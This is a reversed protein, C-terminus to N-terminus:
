KGLLRKASLAGREEPTLTKPAPGGDASIAPPAYSRMEEVFTKPGNSEADAAAMSLAVSVLELPLNTEFAFHEALKERGVALPNQLIAAIRKKEAAKVRERDIQHGRPASLAGSHLPSRQPTMPSVPIPPKPLTAEVDPWYGVADALGEAVADAGVYTQAETALAAASTMRKGRGLEVEDAFQVRLDEVRAQLDAKAQDSLQEFPNGDTKFKGAGIVTNKIGISAYAGSLDSHVAFVGISGVEAGPTVTIEQAQAALWYAASAAMGTVYAKVPKGKGIQRILEATSDTGSSFGGPSDIQLVISTVDRDAAARTLQERIGEQSILGFLSLFASGTPVLTGSITLIAAGNLLRYGSGWIDDDQAEGRWRDIAQPQTADLAQALARMAALPHIALLEYGQAFFM